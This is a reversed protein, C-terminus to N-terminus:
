GEPTYGREAETWSVEGTKLGWIRYLDNYFEPRPFDPKITGDQKLPRNAYHEKKTECEEVVMELKEVPISFILETEPCCARGTEGPDPLTIRFERTLHTPMFSFVCSDMYDFDSHVSMGTGRKVGGLIDRLQSSSACYALVVDPIFSTSELPAIVIVRNDNRPMMPFENQFYYDARSPDPIGSNRLVHRYAETNRECDVLGFAMLPKWCWHDEKALAITIGKTKVLSVAQCMGYHVGQDRYPRLAERPAKEPSEFVRIAVPSYPLGIVERLRKGLNQMQEVTYM